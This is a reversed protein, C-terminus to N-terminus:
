QQKDKQAQNTLVTQIFDKFSKSEDLAQHRLQKHTEADLKINIAKRRQEDCM